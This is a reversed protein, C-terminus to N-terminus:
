KLQCGQATNASDHLIVTEFHFLNVVGHFMKPVLGILSGTHETGDDVDMCRM